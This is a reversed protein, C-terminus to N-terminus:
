DPLEIETVASSRGQQHVVVLRFESARVPTFSLQNADGVRPTPPEQQVQEVPRWGTEDKYEVRVAAPPWTGKEDAFFHVALHALKRPGGYRWAIWDEPQGSGYTAWRSRDGGPTYVVKGDFAAEPGDADYAYSSDVSTIGRSLRAGAPQVPAAPPSPPAPEVQSVHGRLALVVVAGFVVAMSGRRLWRELRDSTGARAEM